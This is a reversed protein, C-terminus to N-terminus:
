TTVSYPMACRFDVDSDQANNIIDALKQPNNFWSEIVERLHDLIEYTGIVSFMGAEPDFIVKDSFGRQDAYFKILSHWFYGNGVFGANRIIQAVSEPGPAEFYLATVGGTSVLHM